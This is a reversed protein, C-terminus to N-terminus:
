KLIKPVDQVVEKVFDDNAEGPGAAHNAVVKRGVYLVVVTEARPNIGFNAPGNEFEVPVTIPVNEFQQDKGFEKAADELTARDEGLVNVFAKMGKDANEGVLKDIQKVLSALHDDTKRAFIM